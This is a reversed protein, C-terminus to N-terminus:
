EPDFDEALALSRTLPGYAAALGSQGRLLDFAFSYNDGLSTIRAANRRIFNKHPNNRNENFLEMPGFLHGQNWADQPWGVAASKEHIRQEFIGFGAETREILNDLKAEDGERPAVTSQEFISPVAATVREHIESRLRQEHWPLKGKKPAPRDLEQCIAIIGARPDSMTQEIIADSVRAFQDPTIGFQRHFYDGIINRGNM